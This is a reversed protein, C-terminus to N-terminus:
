YSIISIVTIMNKILCTHTDIILYHISYWGYSYMGLTLSNQLSLTDINYIHYSIHIMNDSSRTIIHRNRTGTTGDNIDDMGPLPVTFYEPEMEWFCQLGYTTVIVCIKVCNHAIEWFICHSLVLICYWVIGVPCQRKKVLM